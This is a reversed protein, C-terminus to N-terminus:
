DVAYVNDYINIFVDEGSEIAKAIQPYIKKYAILSGKMFGSDDSSVTTGVLICGSTDEDDNGIHILIYEFDPVDKVWLMGKHFDEGFKKLYRNHFGGEKRLALKYRGSWVRTESHVKKSRFEDELTHCEFFGNIFFLGQTYDNEDRYRILDIDM